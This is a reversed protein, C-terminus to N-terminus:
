LRGSKALMSIIACSIGCLAGVVGYYLGAEGSSISGTVFSTTIGTYACVLGIIAGAIGLKRGREASDFAQVSATDIDLESAGVEFAVALARKSDLSCSGQNEIRQITRLSLGSVTALQDQSWSRQSRLKKILEQDIMYEM